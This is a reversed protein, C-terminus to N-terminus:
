RLKAYMVQDLIQGDKIASRRMLGERVFGVKELVRCSPLNNAFPVAFVRELSLAGFAYDTLLDVADTMIGRGWYDEGIWYGLEASLREIDQGVRLSLGGVAQGDVEIALSHYPNKALIFQIYGIADDETYPHPFRDRLNRWVARNNGNRAISPADEPRFTRVVCKPTRKPLSM